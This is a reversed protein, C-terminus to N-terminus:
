NCVYEKGKSSESKESISVSYVIRQKSVPDVITRVPHNFTLEIIERTFVDETKGQVVIEGEKMFILVDAYQAALNLDHLIVLVGLNESLLNRTTSLLLHQHKIDLDSTPEDLLLYKAYDTHDYVQAMVRALQVRQKEGGSLTQYLRDEYAELDLKRIVNKIIGNNEVSSTQKAFCGIEIVQKVTFPFNLSTQQPMVARVRSLEKASFDNVNIGNITLHGEKHTYERAICKLFTSKGAGNPGVIVTMKGPQIQTSCGRVLQKNGIQYGINRADIM